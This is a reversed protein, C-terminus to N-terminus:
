FAYRLNVYASRPEGYWGNNANINTFYAKDFVNNLNLTATLNRNVEYQAMVDVVAVSGQSHQADYVRNQWRVNAGLTLGEVLWAPRYSTFLKFMRRPIYTLRADGNADKPSSYSYGGAVQWAPTLQGSVELEYGTTKTGDVAKYIYQGTPGYSTSGGPGPVYEPLKDKKTEFYAASLNLRDELFALKVGGEINTGEAPKLLEGNSDYNTSPQFIDTYSGYVSVNRTVDFVLGAYPTFVSSEENTVGRTFAGAATYRDTRTKWNSIRGGLIVSLRDTPKLRASAYAGSQKDHTTSGNGNPALYTYPYDGTRIFDSANGINADLRQFGRDRGEMKSFNGGLVLEHRRGFLEFPGTAYLGVSSQEPKGGYRIARFAGGGQRTLNNSLGAQVIDFERRSHEVDLQVRWDNEFYHQLTSFLTLNERDTYAWDAALNASRSFGTPTGDTFSLRTGQQASGAGTSRHKQYEVGASLVTGPMLDAEVVGYVIDKRMKVRDMFTGNDQHVAVLRGRVKGSESLPTSIDGEVRYFDWSGAKAAVHAQFGRTPLKRVLNVAGSPEGIGNLLGSAGRVVEVRDFVATDAIDNKFGFRTSRPVGNVQYNQLEFGRSYVFNSDGGVVNTNNFYLGTTQELVKSIEDLGQDEMRKHTMVTVSQPTERLSLDLKTATNTLHTTYSGSGETVGLVRVPALATPENAQAAARIVTYTQAGHAQASLGSGALLLRLADEAAYNGHLAGSQLGGTLAESFLIQAGTQRALLTLSESLPGAALNVAHLTAAAQPSQAKAPRGPLALAGASFLVALSIALARPRVFPAPRAAKAGVRQQPPFSM